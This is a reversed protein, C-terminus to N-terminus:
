VRVSILLDKKLFVNKYSSSVSKSMSHKQGTDALKTASDPNQLHVQNQLWDRKNEQAHGEARPLTGDPSRRQGRPTATPEQLKENNQHIVENGRM